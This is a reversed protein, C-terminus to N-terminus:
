DNSHEPQGDDSLTALPQDPSEVAESDADAAVDVDPLYQRHDPPVAESPPPEGTLAGDRLTRLPLIVVRGDAGIWAVTDDGADLPFRSDSAFAKAFYLQVSSGNANVSVRDHDTM